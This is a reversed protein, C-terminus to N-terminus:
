SEARRAFHRRMPIRGAPQPLRFRLDGAADLFREAHLRAAAGPEPESEPRCEYLWMPGCRCVGCVVLVAGNRLVREGVAFRASRDPQEYPM